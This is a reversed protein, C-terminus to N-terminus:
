QESSIEVPQNCILQEVQQAVGAKILDPCSSAAGNSPPPNYLFPKLSAVTIRTDVISGVVM